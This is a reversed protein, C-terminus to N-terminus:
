TGCVSRGVPRLSVTPKTTPKTDPKTNAQTSLCETCCKTLILKSLEKSHWKTQQHQAQSSAFCPGRTTAICICPHSHRMAVAYGGRRCAHARALLIKCCSQIDHLIPSGSLLVPKVQNDHLKPAHSGLNATMPLRPLLLQTATRSPSKGRGSAM